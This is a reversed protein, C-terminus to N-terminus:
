PNETLRCNSVEFLVALGRPLVSVSACLLRRTWPGIIPPVLAWTKMESQTFSSPQACQAGYVEKEDVDSRCKPLDRQVTCVVGLLNFERITSPSPPFFFLCKCILRATRSM